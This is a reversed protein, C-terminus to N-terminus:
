LSLDGLEKFIELVEEFEQYRFSSSTIQKIDINIGENIVDLIYKDIINNYFLHLDNKEYAKM